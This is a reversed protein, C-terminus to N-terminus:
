HIAIQLPRLQRTRLYQSFRRFSSPAVLSNAGFKPDIICRVLLAISTILYLIANNFVKDPIADISKHLEIIGGQSLSHQQSLAFLINSMSDEQRNSQPLLLYTRKNIILTSSFKANACVQHPEARAAKRCNGAVAGISVSAKVTESHIGWFNENM